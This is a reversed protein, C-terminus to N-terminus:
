TWWPVEKGSKRRLSNLRCIIKAGVGSEICTPHQSSPPEARILTEEEKSPRFEEKFFIVFVYLSTRAFIGTFVITIPKM